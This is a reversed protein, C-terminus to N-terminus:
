SALQRVRRLRHYEVYLAKFAFIATSSTFVVRLLVPNGIIAAAISPLLISAGAISLINTDKGKFDFLADDRLGYGDRFAAPLCVLALGGLSQALVLGRWPASAGATLSIWVCAGLGAVALAPIITRLSRRISEM